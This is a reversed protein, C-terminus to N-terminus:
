WKSSKPLRTAKATRAIRASRTSFIPSPWFGALCRFARAKLGEPYGSGDWREHHYKVGPLLDNVKQSQINSLIAAGHMPHRRMEAFEEDTLKGPKNLIADPM